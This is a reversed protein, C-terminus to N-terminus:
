PKGEILALLRADEQRNLEEQAQKSMLDYVSMENPKPEPVLGALRLLTHELSETNRYQARQLALTQEPNLEVTLIM